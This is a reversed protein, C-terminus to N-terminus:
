QTPLSYFVAGKVIKTKGWALFPEVMGEQIGLKLTEKQQAMWIFFLLAPLKVPSDLAQRVTSYPVNKVNKQPSSFTFLFFRSSFDWESITTGSSFGM